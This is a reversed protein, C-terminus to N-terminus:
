SLKGTIHLKSRLTHEIIAKEAADENKQAIAQAIKKHQENAGEMRIYIKNLKAAFAKTLQELNMISAKLIQNGSIEAIKIHFLTDLEVVHPMDGHILDEDMQTTYGFLIKVDEDSCNRAALRCTGTELYLRADYITEIDFDAFEILPLLPSMFTGLDINNIFTGRGQQISVLGMSSLKKLSERITIRSVGYKVCLENETPLRSDVPYVGNVIERVINDTVIDCKKKVSVQHM